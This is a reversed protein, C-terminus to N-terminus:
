NVGGCVTKQQSNIINLFFFFFFHCFCLCVSVCVCVCVCVSFTVMVCVCVCTGRGVRQTEDHQQEKVVGAKRGSRESVAMGRAPTM